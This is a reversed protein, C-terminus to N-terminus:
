HEGALRLIADYDRARLWYGASRLAELKARVGPIWGRRKAKLYLATTRVTVLGMRRAQEIARRDDVLVLEASQNRAVLLAESEGRHIAAEQMLRRVEQNDPAPALHLWQGLAQEVEAAGPQRGSALVVEDYVAPPIVVSSFFQPLLHFDHLRALYILPSSNSVVGSM